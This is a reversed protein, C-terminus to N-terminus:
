QSIYRDEFDILQAGSQLYARTIQGRQSLIERSPCSTDNIEM